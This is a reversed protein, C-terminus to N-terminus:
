ACLLEVGYRQRQPELVRGVAAEAACIGTHVHYPEVDDEVKFPFYAVSLLYM